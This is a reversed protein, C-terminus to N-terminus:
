VREPSRELAIWLGGNDTASIRVRLPRNPDAFDGIHELTIDLTGALQAREIRHILEPTGLCPAMASFFRQGYTRELRFGSQAAETKSFYEVKGEANLRIVGFPLANRADDSLQELRVALDPADLPLPLLESEPDM